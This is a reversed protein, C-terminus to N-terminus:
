AMFPYRHGWCREKLSSERSFTGEVRRASERSERRVRLCTTRVMVRRVRVRVKM